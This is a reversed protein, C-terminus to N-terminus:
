ATGRLSRLAARAFTVGQPTPTYSRGVVGPEDIYAGLRYLVTSADWAAQAAMSPTMPAGDIGMWGVAGLIEAGTRNPNITSQAAVAALFIIGAQTECDDRSAPPMHDALHWWLALPDDRVAQGRKTLSLTGRYKRLLGMAQASERLHLVPMTQIERNGKGIWAEGLGLDAMAAKVHAPPLYGAGTLKIGDAGVRNLLWGYPSVMQAATDADIEVPADLDADEILQQFLARHEQSRIADALEGLPGPLGSSELLALRRRSPDALTKNIWELDLPNPTYGSPDADAGYLQAYGAVAEAHEPHRPDVAAVILEYGHVGGCDESPGPRRGDTCVASPASEDRPREAELKIVHTWDDGFDYLYFLKDGPKALVEDLRVDEEPIGTEGEEAQFPCLYHEAARDYYDKGSAFEHLHSDTWGFAVQLIDHVENLLLDSSLELRRWLPPKTGELDVRVQYTVVDDRRPRRRSPVPPREFADVGPTAAAALIQPLLGRLQDANLGTLSAQFQELLKAQSDDRKRAM